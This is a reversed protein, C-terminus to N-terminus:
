YVKIFEESFLSDAFKINILYPFDAVYDPSWLDNKVLFFKSYSFNNGLQIYYDIDYNHLRKPLKMYFLKPYKKPSVINM